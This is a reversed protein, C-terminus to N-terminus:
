HKQHTIDQGLDNDFLPLQIHFLQPLIVGIQFSLFFRLAPFLSESTNVAAFHLLTKCFGNFTYMIYKRCTETCPMFMGEKEWM